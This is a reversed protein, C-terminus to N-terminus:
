KLLSTALEVIAAVLDGVGPVASLKAAARQLLEGLEAVYERDPADGAVEQALADLRKALNVADAAQAEPARGLAAKLQGVLEALRAKQDPAAAPMAGISQVVNDLRSEINLVAGRFDGSMVYKSGKIEDGGVTKQGANVDGGASIGGGVFAGGGTNLTGIQYITAAEAEAASQPLELDAPADPWTVNGRQQRVEALLDPLLGKRAADYILSNVKTPKTGGRLADYDIGLLFALTEIEEGGFYTTLKTQLEALFRRSAENM